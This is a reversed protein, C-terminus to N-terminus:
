DKRHLDIGLYDCVEPVEEILNLLVALCGPPNNEGHLWRLMTADPTNLVGALVAASFGTQRQLDALRGAAMKRVGTEYSDLKAM